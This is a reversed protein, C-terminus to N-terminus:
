AGADILRARRHTISHFMQRHEHLTEFNDQTPGPMQSPARRRADSVFPSFPNPPYFRPRSCRIRDPASIAVTSRAIDPVATPSQSISRIPRIFLPNWRPARRADIVFPHVSRASRACLPPDSRTSSITRQPCSPQTQPREGPWLDFGSSGGFVLETGVGVGSGGWNCNEAGEAGGRSSM